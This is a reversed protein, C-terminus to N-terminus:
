KIEWGLSQLALKKAKIGATSRENAYAIAAEYTGYLEFGNTLLQAYSSTAKALWDM